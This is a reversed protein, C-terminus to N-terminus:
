QPLARKKRYHDYVIAAVALVMLAVEFKEVHLSRIVVIGHVILAFGWVLMFFLVARKKILEYIQSGIMGIGLYIDVWARGLSLGIIIAAASLVIAATIHTSKMNM